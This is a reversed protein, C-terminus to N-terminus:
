NIQIKKLPLFWKSILNEWMKFQFRVLYIGIFGAWWSRELLVLPVSWNRWFKWNHNLKIKLSYIMWYELVEASCTWIDHFWAWACRRTLLKGTWHIEYSFFCCVAKRWLFIGRKFKHSFLCIIEKTWFLCMPSLVSHQDKKYFHGAFPWGRWSIHLRIIEEWCEKSFGETLGAHVL